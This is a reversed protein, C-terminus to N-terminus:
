RRTGWLRAIGVTIMPGVLVLLFGYAMASYGQAVLAIIGVKALIMAAALFAATLLGRTVMGLHRGTREELHKDARDVIAFTLGVATDLLTWVLILYYAVLLWWRGTAVVVDHLPVPSALTSASGGLVATAVLGMPVVILLAAAVSSAVVEARTRLLDFAYLCAPLAVANYCVYELGSLAWGNVRGHALIDRWAGARSLSAIAFLGYGASLITAGILKTAMVATRGWAVIAAGLVVAGMVGVAAPLAVVRFLVEVAASVVIACVLVAMAGYILDLVPWAPGLFVRAWSRYDFVRYVRAIEAALFFLIGFGVASVVLVGIGGLGHRVCYEVIERGTAFGGGTVVSQFVLGPVLVRTVRRLQVSM